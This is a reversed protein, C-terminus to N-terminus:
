RCIRGRTLYWYELSNMVNNFGIYDKWADLRGYPKRQKLYKYITGFYKLERRRGRFHAFVLNKPAKGEIAAVGLMFRLTAMYYDGPDIKLEQVEHHGVVDWPTLRHQKMVAISLSLANAIQQNDPQNEIPFNLDYDRGVQEFGVTHFNFSKVNARYLEQINSDIKTNKFIELTKLKHDDEVEMRVHAGYRPFNVDGSPKHTQLVGYGSIGKQKEGIPFGDVCWHASLGNRDLLWVISEAHREVRYNELEWFRSNGDNHVVLLSVSEVKDEQQLSYKTPIASVQQNQGDKTRQLLNGEPDFALPVTFSLIESVRDNLLLFESIDTNSSYEPILKNPFALAALTTAGLELFNRRGLKEQM